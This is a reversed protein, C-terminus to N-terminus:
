ALPHKGPKEGLPHKGPKEGAAPFLELDVQTLVFRPEETIKRARHELDSGAGAGVQM